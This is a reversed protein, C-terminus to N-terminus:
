FHIVKCKMSPFQFLNEWIGLKYFMVYKHSSHTPPHGIFVYCEYDYYYFFILLFIQFIWLIHPIFLFFFYIVFWLLQIVYKQTNFNKISLNKSLFLDSFRKELLSLKITQPILRHISFCFKANCSSVSM